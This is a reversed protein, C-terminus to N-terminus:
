IMDGPKDYYRPSLDWKSSSTHTNGNERQYCWGRWAHISCKSGHENRHNSKWVSKCNNVYAGHSQYSLDLLQCLSKATLLPNRSVLESIRQRMSVSYSNESNSETVKSSREKWSGWIRNEMLRFELDNEWCALVPVALGPIEVSVSVIVGFSRM